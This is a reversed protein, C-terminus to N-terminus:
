KRLISASSVVVQCEANFGGDSTKATIVAKGAAGSVASVLGGADVKVIEHNSSSWNIEQNEALAPLPFAILKKAEGSSLILDRNSLVIGTAKIGSVPKGWWYNKLHADGILTDITENLSIDNWDRWDVWGSGINELTQANLKFGDVRKIFDNGPLKSLHDYFWETCMVRYSGMLTKLASSSTSNYMHFAITTYKWDIDNKYNEIVDVIQPTIGNFSFFLIQREPALKRITHYLKLYNTKFDSKLYDNMSFTPENAPEYYVLRNGKYRPAVAAWFDNELAFGFTKDYEQQAGVNHFNIILNMGTATANAVVRDLHPLVENVTWHDQNRNVYYPDVWCIRITNFGNNQIMKWNEINKAFALSQPLAKGLVMPTGRMINGNQDILTGSKVSSGPNEATRDPSISSQTTDPNKNNLENEPYTGFCILGSIMCVLFLLSKM